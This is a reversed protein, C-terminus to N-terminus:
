LEDTSVVGTAIAREVLRVRKQNPPLGDVGFKQFLLRLHSKVADLSLFLEEAIAQNTAPTAFPAGDRYPRCLGILVKRQADSVSPAALMAEDAIITAAAERQPPERFEITTTGFRMLAGDTLRRRGRVREGDVYSGNRSLGDDEVTWHGGVREIRAHVRSVQPDWGLCVDNSEDRGVTLHEVDHMLPHIQQRMTEDRMVLFAVGQREAALREQLEVPTARHPENM